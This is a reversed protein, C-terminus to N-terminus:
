HVTKKFFKARIMRWDTRHKKLKKSLNDLNESSEELNESSEELNESSRKLNESSIQNNECYRRHYRIRILVFQFLQTFVVYM